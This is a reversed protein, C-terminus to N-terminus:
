EQVLTYIFARGEGRDRTVRFQTGDTEWLQCDGSNYDGDIQRCWYGDQWTWQAVIQKGMVHGTMTGDAHITVHNEGLWLQRDTAQARFADEDAIRTFPEAQVPASLLAAALALIPRAAM